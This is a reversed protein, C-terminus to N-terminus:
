NIDNLKKIKGVKRLLENSLDKVSIGRTGTKLIIALLEENNLSEVGNLILRERPREENPIDKIKVTM